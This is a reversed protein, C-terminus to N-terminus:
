NAESSTSSYAGAPFMLAEIQPTTVEGLFDLPEDIEIESSSSIDGIDEDLMDDISVAAPPKDQELHDLHGSHNRIRGEKSKQLQEELSDSETSESLPEFSPIIKKRTSNSRSLSRTLATPSENNRRSPRELSRSMMMPPTQKRRQLLPSASTSEQDSEQQYEIKWSLSESKEVVQSLRPSDPGQHTKLSKTLSALNFKGPPASM